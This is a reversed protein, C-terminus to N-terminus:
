QAQSAQLILRQLSESFIVGEEVSLRLKKLEHEILRCNDSVLSDSVGLMAAIELQSPGDPDYYCHWLTALLRVYRRENNNVARRLAILFEDAMKAARRDKEARLLRDEPTDRTDVAERHVANGENGARMQEDLSAIRYDQLPIKSLALQRLTRVDAPSDIAKFIEVILQELDTNSLILQSSGSRGVLRTNRRRMPVEKIADAFHGADRLQKSDRWEKLGYVQYVMCRRRPNNSNVNGSNEEDADDLTEILDDEESLHTEVPKAKKPPRGRRAPKNASVDKAGTKEGMLRFRPSRKLLSSVRRAMRFSEPYRKRLRAGVLNPLELRAIENEIESNTYRGRIYHDFRQKQFLELFLEQTLDANIETQLTVAAGDTAFHLPRVAPHRSVLRYLGNWLGEVDEEALLGVWDIEAM